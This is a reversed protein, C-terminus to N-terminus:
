SGGQYLQAAPSGEMRQRFFCNGIEKMARQVSSNAAIGTLTVLRSDLAAGGGMEALARLCRLQQATVYELLITYAREEDSFLRQLAPQLSPLELRDGASSQGWLCQCLRQMDGPVDHCMSFMEDLLEDDLLRQGTAFSDHLFQAFENRSLPGPEFRIATKYFSSAHDFFIRDM